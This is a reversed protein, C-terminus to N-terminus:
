ARRPQSAKGKIKVCGCISPVAQIGVVGRSNYNKVRKKVRANLFALVEFFINKKSLKCQRLIGTTNKKSIKRVVGFLDNFNSDDRM